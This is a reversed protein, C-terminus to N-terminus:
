KDPYSNKRIYNNNNINKRTMAYLRYHIKTKM